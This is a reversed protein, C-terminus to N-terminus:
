TGVIVGWGRHRVELRLAKAKWEEVEEGGQAEAAEVKEKFAAAEAAAAARAQVIQEEKEALQRRCKMEWATVEQELEQVRAELGKARSDAAARAREEAALERRVRTVEQNLSAELMEADETARAALEETVRRESESVLQQVARPWTDRPKSPLTDLAATAAVAAGAAAKRAEDLSAVISDNDATVAIIRQELREM